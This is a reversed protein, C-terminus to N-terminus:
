DSRLYCTDLYIKLYDKGNRKFIYPISLICVPINIMKNMPVEDSLSFKISNRGFKISNANEFFDIEEEIFDWLKEYKEMM